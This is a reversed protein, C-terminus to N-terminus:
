KLNVFSNWMVWLFDHRWYNFPHSFQPFIHEVVLPNSVHCIYPQHLRNKSTGSFINMSTFLCLRCVWTREHANLFWKCHVGMKWGDMRANMWAYMWGSSLDRTQWLALACLRVIMWTWAWILNILSGFNATTKFILTFYFGATEAPHM